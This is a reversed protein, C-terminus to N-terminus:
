HAKQIKPPRNKEPMPYRMLTDVREQLTPHHNKVVSYLPDTYYDLKNKYFIISLSNAIDIAGDDGGHKASYDDCM